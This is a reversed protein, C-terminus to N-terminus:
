NGTRVPELANIQSVAYTLETLASSLDAIILRMEEYPPVFAQGFEFTYSYIKPKSPDTLHRSYAYDQTTGSTYYLRASEEVKYSKGRVAQLAANMRNGLERELKEDQPTIYEKYSDKITQPSKGSAGRIGNFQQNKFNQNPDTTQNNDDGWNYMIKEGFSHIDVYFRIQPYTDLLYKINQSEPESFPAPGLYILSNKDASTGITSGWLFDFNRNLDVGMPNGNEDPRRNKRWWFGNGAEEDRFSHHKQHNEQSYIKGDPNVEPFIILDVSDLAQKIQEYAFSKNGYQIPQRSTYAQVLKTLLNICIDSGGWERAHVNGTILIAPKIRAQQPAASLKVARCTRGEWTRNPLTILSVLGPNNRSLQLLTNDIEDVTMYGGRISDATFDASATGQDSEMRNGHYIEQLREAPIDTADLEIELTYGEKKLLELQEESLIGSVSYDAETIQKASSRVLDLSYNELEHLKQLSSAHILAQLIKM